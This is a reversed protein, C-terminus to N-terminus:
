NVRVDQMAGEIDKKGAELDQSRGTAEVLIIRKDTAYVDVWYKKGGYNYRLAKGPIGSKSKVEATAGDAVYGRQQLRLDIAEVWFDLNAQPENKEVRAAIVVGRASTIRDDYEGDVRAYGPPPNLRASPGCAVSALPVLLFLASVLLKMSSNM